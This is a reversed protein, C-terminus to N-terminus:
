GTDGILTAPGTQGQTGGTDQTKNFASGWVTSNATGAGGGRAQIFVFDGTDVGMDGAKQFFGATDAVATYLGTDEYWWVRGGTIGQSILRLNNKNWLAM